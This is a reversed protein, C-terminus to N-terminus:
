KPASSTHASVWLGMTLASPLSQQSASTAAILTASTLIAAAVSVTMHCCILLQTAMIPKLAVYLPEPAPKRARQLRGYGRTACRRFKWFNPRRTM